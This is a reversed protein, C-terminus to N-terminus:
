DWVFKWNGDTQRKWVTHFIGTEETVVGLSDTKIYLYKGYTYGLDGSKSVDVFDPKWSLKALDAEPKRDKYSARLSDIGVLVKKGKKIVVDDAAFALFAEPISKEKAMKAFALETDVIEQKWKEILEPSSEINNCGLLILFLCIIIFMFNKM